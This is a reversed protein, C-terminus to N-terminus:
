LRPTRPAGSPGGPPPGGDPRGRAPQAGGPADLVVQDGPQLGKRIEASVRNTVGIEVTREVPEGNELVRVTYQGRQRPMPRLAAMPVVPVNKAQAAVFFVHASMQPLLEHGPNPVDFLSAFLVVNNVVEPTPLIQRLVGDRRRDPQGLTTFYAPMGLKLRPVDAESVQTRVTMTDLEAIRLIIPAQQNANLTQGLRATIDVVTGSIPAYIKTYGLNAQDGKLTSETQKIQAELAAIQAALAQRAADASDFADQSTARDALLRRQRDFQKEALTLQVQRETVQARLSLLQAQSAAVRAEYVTPDIQALLQGQEVKAGYDVLIAKLQGSVQTGVDVYTRAQLTGVASVTDEVSGLAVTHTRQVPPPKANATWLWWSFAAAVPVAVLFLRKM